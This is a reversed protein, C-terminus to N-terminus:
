ALRAFSAPGIRAHTDHSRMSNPSFAFGPLPQSAFFNRQRNIDLAPALRQSPKHAWQISTPSEFAYAFTLLKLPSCSGPSDSIGSAPVSSSCVHLALLPSLYRSVSFFSFFSFDLEFLCHLRGMAFSFPARYSSEVPASFFPCSSWPKEPHRRSCRFATLIFSGSYQHFKLGV